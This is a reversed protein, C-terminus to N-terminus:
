EDSYYGVPAQRPAPADCTSGTPSESLALNIVPRPTGPTVRPNVFRGDVLNIQKGFGDSFTNTTIDQPYRLTEGNTGTLMYESEAIAPINGVSGSTICLEQGQNNKHCVTVREAFVFVSMVLCILIFMIFINKKNVL